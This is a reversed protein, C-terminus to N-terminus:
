QLLKLVQQTTMNAQALVATAAEQIIQTRALETSTTAYDADRIEGRAAQTNQNVSALNDVTTRLRSITAGLDSRSHIVHDIAEDIATISASANDLTNTNSGVVGSMRGNFTFDPLNITITQGKRTGVQFVFGDPTGGDLLKIDNLEATQAMRNLEAKLGQFETDTLDRNVATETAAQVALERMRQLIDSIEGLASDATDAMAIADNANREVQDLGKIIGNMKIVVASGAADDSARNIRKGTSLQEMAMTTARENRKMALQTILASINTNITTM